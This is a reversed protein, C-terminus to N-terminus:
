NLDFVVMLLGIQPYGIEAEIVTRSSDVEIASGWAGISPPEGKYFCSVDLYGEGAVYASDPSTPIESIGGKAEVATGVCLAIFLFGFLALGVIKRMKKGGKYNRVRQINYGGM